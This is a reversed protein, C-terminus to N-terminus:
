AARQEHAEAGLCTACQPVHNLRGRQVAIARDFLRAASLHDTISKARDRIATEQALLEQYLLCSPAVTPESVHLKIM